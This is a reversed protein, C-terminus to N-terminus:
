PCPLLGNEPDDPIGLARLLGDDDEPKGWLGGGSLGWRETAWADSPAIAPHASYAPDRPLVIPLPAVMAAMCEGADVAQPHASLVPVAPALPLAKDSMSFWSPPNASASARFSKRQVDADVSVTLMEGVAAM